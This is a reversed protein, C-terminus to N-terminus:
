RKLTINVSSGLSILKEMQKYKQSPIYIYM